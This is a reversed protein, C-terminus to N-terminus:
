AAVELFYLLTTEAPRLTDLVKVKFVKNDSDVMEDFDGLDTEGSTPPAAILVQSGRQVVDDRLEVRFGLQILSAPPVAVASIQVSEAPPTTPSANGRWPKNSDTPTNNLRRLTITRGANGILRQATALMRDYDIAM